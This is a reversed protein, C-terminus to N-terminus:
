RRTAVRIRNYFLSKDRDLLARGLADDFSWAAGFFRHLPRENNLQRILVRTGTATQATLHAAWASVTDDDSWDFINSVSILDFARLDRIDPLSAQHWTVSSPDRPEMLWAPPHLYRGLLIHQLYPNRTAGTAAMGREFVRQFYGPYSGPAAHQTADKGFMTDLLADSFALEFAVSWYPHAKVTELTERRRAGSTEQFWSEWTDAPAVFTHLTTRLLLFLREFAGSQTTSPDSPRHKAWDLQVPNLDYAHLTLDPFRSRLAWLTCGGSAVLLAAGKPRVLAAEIAPDERTIAFKLESM